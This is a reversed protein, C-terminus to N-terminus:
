HVIEEEKKISFGKVYQQFTKQVRTAIDNIEEDRLHNYLINVQGIDNISILREPNKLILIRGLDKIEGNLNLKLYEKVDTFKLDIYINNPSFTVKENYM